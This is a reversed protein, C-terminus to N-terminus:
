FELLRRAMAIIEAGTPPPLVLTHHDFQESYATFNGDFGDCDFVPPGNSYVRNDHMKVWFDKPDLSKDCGPMQTYACGRSGCSREPLICTNNWYGISYDVPLHPGQNLFLLACSSLRTACSFCLYWEPPSPQWRVQYWNAHICYAGFVTVPYALINNTTNMSHGYWQSKIGGGFSLFNGDTHLYSSGDAYCRRLM